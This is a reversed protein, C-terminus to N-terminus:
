PAPAQAVIRLKRAGAIIDKPKLGYVQRISHSFHTSDPYGIDLAIHVLSTGTHVHHLLSRARKWARVNRFPIGVEEKFLHRFRSFSLNVRSACAESPMAGSPDNRINELVAAIRGDLRRAPLPEGFFAPDFDAPRLDPADDKSALRRHMDRVHAAFGPAHVAGCRRLLPPLRGVDVTEPEVLVNLVNRGESAIEYPVYPQIVAVETSVWEGGGLRVSLRGDIAVYAIIAGQTHLSRAGLLGAYFLRDATLWMVRDTSRCRQPVFAHGDELAMAAGSMSGIATEM